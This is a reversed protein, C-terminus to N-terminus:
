LPKYKIPRLNLHGKEIEIKLDTESNSANCDEDTYDAVKVMNLWHKIHPGDVVIKIRQWAGPKLVRKKRNVESLNKASVKGIISGMLYDADSNKYDLTTDDFIAFSSMCLMEQNDKIRYNIRGKTGPAMQVDAILEYGNKSNPLSILKEGQANDVKLVHSQKRANTAPNVIDMAIWGKGGITERSFLVWNNAEEHPSLQDTLYSVSPVNKEARTYDAEPPNELIRINRWHTAAGPVGMNNNVSHIQLAIYGKSLTDDYLYARSDDGM